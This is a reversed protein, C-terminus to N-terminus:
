PHSPPSRRCRPRASAAGEGDPRLRVWIWGPSRGDRTPWGTAGDWGRIRYYDDLVPMFQARDLAMREGIERNPWNEAYEFSPVVREDMARDRGFHRITIARELNLVREAARSFEAYDWEM